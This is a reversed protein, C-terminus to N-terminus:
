HFEHILPACKISRLAECFVLSDAIEEGLFAEPQRKWGKRLIYVHNM